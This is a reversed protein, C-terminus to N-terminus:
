IRYDKSRAKGLAKKALLVLIWSTPNRMEVEKKRKEGLKSFFFKSIM